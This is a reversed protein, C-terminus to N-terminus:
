VALQAKLGFNELHAMLVAVEAELRAQDAPTSGEARASVADGLITVTCREGILDMVASQHGDEALFVKARAPANSRAYVTRNFLPDDVNIGWFVAKLANLGTRMSVTLDLTSTTALTGQVHTYYVTEEGDHAIWSEASLQWGREGVVTSVGGQFCVDCVDLGGVRNMSGKSKLCVACSSM